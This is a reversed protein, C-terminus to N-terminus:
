VGRGGFDRISSGRCPKPNLTKPNQSMGAYGRMARNWVRVATGGVRSVETCGRFGTSSLVIIRFGLFGQRKLIAFFFFFFCLAPRYQILM